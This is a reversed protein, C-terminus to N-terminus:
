CTMCRPRMAQSPPNPDEESYLPPPCFRFEQICALYPGELSMCPDPLFPFLGQGQGVATVEEETVVESYEPPAEPRDPLGWHLLFGTHSGVSSSRGGFPRLPVTGIVLPLDLLLKSSGPIDM